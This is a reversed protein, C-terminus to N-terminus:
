GPLHDRGPGFLVADLDRAGRRLMELCGMMDAAGAFFTLIPRREEFREGAPPIDAFDPIDKVSRSSCLVELWPGEAPFVLPARAFLIAKGVIGNAHSVVQSRFLATPEFVCRHLALAPLGTAYELVEVSATYRPNIEVPWPVGDRLVFDVGFLGRLRAAAALTEGIRVLLTQTSPTVTLPGLSGCYRFPGAGLWPEGVLQRTVGLLRAGRGDGLYLAAANEGEIFEQLYSKAARTRSFPSGGWFRIGAGGAGARPKLLWRNRRPPPDTVPRVAPCPLGAATLAAHVRWPSRAAALAAAANGWLPRLRGLKRVLGRRNELAGTYMWPGPPAGPLLDLFGDPYRKAPVATVPCRAQLDLDAFLDACWPRLGARLASFAAARTSAGILLLNEGEKM